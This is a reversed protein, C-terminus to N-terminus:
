YLDGLRDSTTFEVDKWTHMIKTLLTNMLEHTKRRNGEDISGIFNIRHTGIIAPKGWFFATKIRKMCDDVWNFNRNLSPEFFANRFFYRQGIKNKQGQTHLIRRYQDKGIEPSFQYNIGQLYKVGYKKLVPELDKHWVYCPAIFSHSRLNYIKEFEDLGEKVIQEKAASESETNFDFAAMFNNRISFNNKFDIGFVGLDFAKLIGINGQQLSTLWQQINVHERGHFQPWIVGAEMGHKFNQYSKTCGPNKAYSNLVSEWYYTQFNNKKIQEFDPNAVICNATIVPHNGLHDKFRTLLEFLSNLDTESELADLYNFPNTHVAIGADALQQMVKKSPIRVSGWDDSEFVVLRRNLKKGPINQINNKITKLL